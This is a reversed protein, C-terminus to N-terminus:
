SLYVLRGDVLALDASPISAARRRIPPGKPSDTVVQLLERAAELRVPAPAAPDTLLSQVTLATQRGLATLERRVADAMEARPQSHLALFEPTELWRYVSSRHVGAQRAADMVTAGRLLALMVSEQVPDPGVRIMSPLAPRLSPLAAVAQKIEVARPRTSRGTLALITHRM